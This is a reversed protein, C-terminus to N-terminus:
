GDDYARLVRVHRVNDCPLGCEYFSWQCDIVCYNLM